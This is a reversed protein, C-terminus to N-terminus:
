RKYVLGMLNERLVALVQQNVKSSKYLSYQGQGTVYFKKGEENNPVLLYDTTRLAGHTVCNHSKM